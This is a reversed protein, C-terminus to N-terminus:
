QPISADKKKITLTFTQPMIEWLHNLADTSQIIDPVNDGNLDKFALGVGICGLLGSVYTIKHVLIGNRDPVNLIRFHPYEHKLSTLEKVITYMGEPICSVNHQNQKWPLEMTKAQCVDNVMWSGLTETPLYTRLVEVKMTREKRARHHDNNYSNYPTNYCKSYENFSSGRSIYVM